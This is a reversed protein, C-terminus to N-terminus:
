SLKAEATHGAQLVLKKLTLISSNLMDNFVVTYFFVISSHLIFVISTIMYKFFGVLYFFFFCVFSNEFIM